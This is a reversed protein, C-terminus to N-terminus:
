NGRKGLYNFFTINQFEIQRNLAELSSFSCFWWDEMGNCLLCPSMITSVWIGRAASFM